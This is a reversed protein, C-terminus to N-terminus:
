EDEDEDIDFIKDLEEIAEDYDEDEIADILDDYKEYLDLKELDEAAEKDCACLTFSLMVVAIIISIYKNM